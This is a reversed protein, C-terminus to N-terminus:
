GVPATPAAVPASATVAPPGAGPGLISGISHTPAGRAPSKGSGAVEIIISSGGPAPSANRPGAGRRRVAPSAGGGLFDRSVLSGTPDIDAQGTRRLALSLTGVTAAVSLKQADTVSVELTATNPNAPKDSNLDANLDIGLVRVNQLVVNSILNRTPGDPTLDRMLVVDVRDGPLAHGGVGSVDTVKITYARMGPAIEAAVSPRAGPGSLKAPLLPERAAIPVLAVPAGAPDNSMVAAIAGFAGQPITSAPMRVVVLADPTLKDGYKIDQKAVVVPLGQEAVTAAHAPGPHPLLARAVFLAGLGLVASAGLSVIAIVRM